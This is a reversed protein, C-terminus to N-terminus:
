KAIRKYIRGPLFDSPVHAPEYMKSVTGNNYWRKLRMAKGIKEYRGDRPRGLNAQRVKERHEATVVKNRMSEVHAKSKPIGKLTQSIRMKTSESHHWGSKSTPGGRSLNKLPGTNKCSMGITDILLTELDWAEQQTLHRIMWINGWDRPVDVYTHWRMFRKGKGMGVYYPAGDQMYIYVYHQKM